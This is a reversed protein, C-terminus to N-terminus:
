RQWLEDSVRNYCYGQAMSASMNDGVRKVTVSLGPSTDAGAPPNLSFQVGKKGSRVTSPGIGQWLYIRSTVPAGLVRIAYDGAGCWFDTPASGVRSVVEFVGNGVNQVEHRNWAWFASAVTPVAAIATIAIGKFWINM